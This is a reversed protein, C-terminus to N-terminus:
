MSVGMRVLLFPGGSIDHEDNGGSLAWFLGIDWLVGIKNNVVAVLENIIQLTFYDTEDVWGIENLMAYGIGAAPRFQIGGSKTPIRMKLLMGGNLLYETHNWMKFQAADIATGLYFKGTIPFDLSGGFCFGDKTEYENEDITMTGQGYYGFKVGFTGKFPGSDDASVAAATISILIAPAMILYLFSRM